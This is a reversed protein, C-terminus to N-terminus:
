ADLMFRGSSSPIDNRRYEFVVEHRTRDLRLSVTLGTPTPAIPRMYKVQFRRAPQFTHGFCTAALRIAWDLQVVGPLVPQGPFHGDFAPHEEPLTLEVVAADPGVYRIALVPPSM